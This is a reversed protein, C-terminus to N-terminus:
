PCRPLLFFPPFSSFYNNGSWCNGSGQFDWALDNYLFGAAHNFQGIANGLSANDRIENGTSAADYGLGACEVPGLALVTCLDAVGIGVADNATVNNRVARSQKSGLLLIGTGRPAACVGVEGDGCHNSRNNAFVYNDEVANRENPPLPAGASALTLIGATNDFAINLSVLADSVNVLGIGSGSSFAVNRDISVGRSGALYIAAHRAGSAANKSIRGGVAYAAEVGYQEGGDLTNSRVVAGDTCQTQIGSRDFGEITFGEVAAG